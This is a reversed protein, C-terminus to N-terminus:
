RQARALEDDIIEAVMEYPVAGAPLPRDNIDALAQLLAPSTGAVNDSAFNM